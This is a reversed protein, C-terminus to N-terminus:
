KVIMMEKTERVTPSEFVIFYLGSNYDSLSVKIEQERPTMIEESFITTIKEGMYNYITIETKGTETFNLKISAEETAPNPTISINKKIVEDEVSHVVVMSFLSDSIDEPNEIEPSLKVVWADYEGHNGIVDGDTSNTRSAIIYGGDTSQAISWGSENESGGLCKQWEFNGINDIKLVWVDAGSHDHHGFVDGNISHTAGTIVYGGDDTHSMSRAYESNAGGFCREWDINGSDSLKIIWLDSSSEYLRTMVDGDNSETYGAIICGGDHTQLSSYARDIESGGIINIWSLNGFQDLKSVWIDEKGHNGSIDGDNSKTYGTVFYGGEESNAISLAYDDYKGGFSTQWEIQGEANIKLVWCDYGGQNEIVDGYNSKTYGSVVYGGDPTQIIQHAKDPYLGGYCNEWVINGISNLKVIWADAAGHNKKIDGDNSETYGAIICGGDHTQLSSYARDIESGGIINIWSLNGFQDLKSVWIDEKGHNGSIDGDNSKTYGTVFYGGEESNAISLAYDDYKGGFSTQWEIQGEANIKLVWCDYGGQNEIVDGYNSKTYGSVVYGGDPTQIIQHAKDPYLGGYCNEWVINGISNLKVIWADAAGHNKKIDGDYLVQRELSLIVVM